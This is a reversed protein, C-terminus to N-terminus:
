HSKRQCRRRLGEEARGDYIGKRKIASPPPLKVVPLTICIRQGKFVICYTRRQIQLNETTSGTQAKPADFEVGIEKNQGAKFSLSACERSRRSRQRDDHIACCIVSAACNTGSERIVMTSPKGCPSSGPRCRTRTPTRNTQDYTNKMHNFQTQKINIGKSRHAYDAGDGDMMVCSLFNDKLSSRGGSDAAALIGQLTKEEALLRSPTVDPLAEEFGLARLGNIALRLDYIGRLRSGVACGAAVTM